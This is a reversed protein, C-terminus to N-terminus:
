ELLNLYYRDDLRLVGPAIEIFGYLRYKQPNERFLNRDIFFCLGALFGHREIAQIAFHSCSPFFPCRSISRTAIDKQYWRILWLSVDKPLRAPNPMPPPKEVQAKLDEPEWPQLDAPVARVSDLSQSQGPMALMSFFGILSLASIRLQARRRNDTM